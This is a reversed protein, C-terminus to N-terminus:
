MPALPEISEETASDEVQLHLIESHNWEPQQTEDTLWQPGHQWLQSMSLQPTSLGRTLLDAPNDDTTCYFLLV